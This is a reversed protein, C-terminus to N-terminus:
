TQKGTIFDLQAFISMWQCKLYKQAGSFPLASNCLAKEHGKSKAAPSWVSCTWPKKFLVPYRCKLLQFGGKVETSVIPVLFSKDQNLHGQLLM